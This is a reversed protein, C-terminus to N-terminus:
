GTSDRRPRGPGESQVDQRREARQPSKNKGEGATQLTIQVSICERRLDLFESSLPVLAVLCLSQSELLSISPIYFHLSSLRPAEPGWGLPSPLPSDVVGIIHCTNQGM